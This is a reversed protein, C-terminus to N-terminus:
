WDTACSQTLQNTTKYEETLWNSQQDTLLQIVLLSSPTQIQPGGGLLTEQTLQKTGIDTSGPHGPHGPHGPLTQSMGSVNRSTTPQGSSDVLDQSSHAFSSM